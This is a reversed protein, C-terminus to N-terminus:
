HLPLGDVPLGGAPAAKTASSAVDGLAGGAQGAAEGATKQAVPVATKVVKGGAKGAAPVAKKVTKGGTDGAMGTVHQATADVNNAVHAGDLATVGGLDPTAPLATTAASASGAAGVVPAAGAAVILAARAIRRTLPLSM